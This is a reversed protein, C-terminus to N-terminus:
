VSHGTIFAHHSFPPSQIFINHTVEQKFIARKIIIKISMPNGAILSTTFNFTNITSHVWRNHDKLSISYCTFNKPIAILEIKM